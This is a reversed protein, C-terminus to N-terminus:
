QRLAHDTGYATNKQKNDLCVDYVMATSTHAGKKEMAFVPFLVMLFDWWILGNLMLTSVQQIFWSINMTNKVLDTYSKITVEAM